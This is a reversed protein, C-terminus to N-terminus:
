LPSPKRATTQNPEKDAGNLLKERKRLRGGNRRGLENIVPSPTVSSGFLIVALFGPGRYDNLVGQQVVNIKKRRLVTIFGFM